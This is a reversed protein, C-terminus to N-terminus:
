PTYNPGTVIPVRLEAAGLERRKRLSVALVGLGLTSVSIWPILSFFWGFGALVPLWIGLLGGVFGGIADAIFLNLLRSQFTLGLLPFLLGTGLAIFGMSVLGGYGYPNASVFMGAIGLVGAVALVGWKKLLTSSIGWALLFLSAGVFFSALPNLLNILLWFIVGNQLYVANLGISVGALAFIIRELATEGPRLNRMSSRLLVACGIAAILAISLFMSWLKQEPILIGLIGLAWPSDDYIPHDTPPTKDFDVFKYGSEALYAKGREGSRFAEVSPSAMLVVGQGLMSKTPLIWGVAHLGAEQLSAAFRNFLRENMDVAKAVAIIGNPKLRSRMVRFAEVTHSRQGPEFLGRVVAAWSDTNPLLILDFQKSSAKLYNRGDATVTEVLPSRYLEGNAWAYKGKLLSFIEPIVDVAVVSRPKRDLAFGVQRGGGAGIIAIDSGEPVFDLIAHQQTYGSQTNDPFAHWTVIGDYNGLVISSGAHTYKVLSVHSYKGWLAELMSVEGVENKNWPLTKSRLVTGINWVNDTYLRNMYPHEFRDAAQWLVLTVFYPALQRMWSKRPRSILFHYSLVTAVPVIAITRMLGWNPITWYGVALASALAWVFILYFGGRLVRSSSGIAAQYGIFEAFGWAIFFPSVLVLQYGLRLLFLILHLNTQLSIASEEVILGPGRTAGWGILPLLFTTIGLVIVSLRLGNLPRRNITQAVYAGVPMAAAVYLVFFATSSVTFTMIRFLCVSLLAFGFAMLFLAATLRGPHTSIQRSSSNDIAFM